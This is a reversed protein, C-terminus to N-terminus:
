NFYKGISLWILIVYLINMSNFCLFDLKLSLNNRLLYFLIVMVTSHKFQDIKEELDQQHTKYSYFVSQCKQLLM